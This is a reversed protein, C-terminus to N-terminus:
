HYNKKMLVFHCTNHWMWFHNMNIAQGKLKPTTTSVSCWSFCGNPWNCNVLTHLQLPPLSIGPSFGCPSCAFTLDWLFKTSIACIELYLYNFNSSEACPRSPCWRSFRSTSNMEIIQNWCIKCCNEKQTDGLMWYFCCSTCYWCYLACLGPALFSCKMVKLGLHDDNM